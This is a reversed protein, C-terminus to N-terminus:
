LKVSDFATSERLSTPYRSVQRNVQNVSLIMRNKTRNVIKVPFGRRIESSSEVVPSRLDERERERLNVRQRVIDFDLEHGIRSTQIDRTNVPYKPCHKLVSTNRLNSSYESVAQIASDM